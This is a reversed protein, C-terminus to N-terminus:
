VDCVGPVAAIIDHSRCECMQVSVFVCVCLRAFMCAHVCARVKIATLTGLVGVTGGIFASPYHHRVSQEILTKGLYEVVELGPMEMGARLSGVGGGGVGNHQVGSSGRRRRQRSRLGASTRWGCGGEIDRSTSASTWSAPQGNQRAAAAARMIDCRGARTTLRAQSQGPNPVVFGTSCQCFFAIITLVM